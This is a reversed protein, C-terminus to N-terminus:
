IIELNDGVTIGKESLWGTPLELAYKINLASPRYVHPLPSNDKEMRVIEAIKMDNNVYTLDLPFNVDRMWFGGVKDFLMGTGAEINARKSLGRRRKNDDDAIEVIAAAKEEGNSSFILFASKVEREKSKQIAYEQKIAKQRTDHTGLKKKGDKTYLIYKGDVKKIIAKKLM